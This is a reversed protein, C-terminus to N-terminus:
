HQVEIALCPLCVGLGKCSRRAEFGHIRVAIEEQRQVALDFFVPEEINM